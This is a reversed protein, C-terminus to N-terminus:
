GAKEIAQEARDLVKNLRGYCFSAQITGSAMGQFFNWGYWDDQSEWKGAEDRFEHLAKMREQEAEKWATRLEAILEQTSM